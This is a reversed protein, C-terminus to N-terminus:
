VQGGAIVVRVSCGAEEGADGNRGLEQVVSAEEYVKVVLDMGDKIVEKWGHHFVGGDEGVENAKPRAAKSGGSGEVNGAGEGIHRGAVRLLEVLKIQCLM